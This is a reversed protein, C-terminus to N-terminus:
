AARARRPWALLLVDVALEPSVNAEILESTRDLRMLFRGLDEAGLDTFTRLDDLLGPDRLRREEGHVLLALDRVLDRWIEVFAAAARRRESAPARLDRGGASEDADPDTAADSGPAADAATDAVPIAAGDKAGRGTRRGRGTSATPLDDPRGARDLARTIDAARTLLERGVALRRAPGAEALDLLARGIEARALVADPALAWARAIGPRGASLRALRAATPADAVGQDALIAEIERVAVPGLRVRVCRSRVTPLLQDERDACLV